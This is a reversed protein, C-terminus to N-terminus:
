LNSNFEPGQLTTNTVKQILQWALGLKKKELLEKFIAKEEENASKYFKMVEMMGINGKYSAEHTISEGGGGDGGMTGSYGTNFGYGGYGWAAGRAKKKKRFRKREQISEDTDKHWYLSNSDYPPPALNRLTSKQAANVAKSRAALAMRKLTEPDKRQLAPFASTQFHQVWTSISDNATPKIRSEVTFECARM